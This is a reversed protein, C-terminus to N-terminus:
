APRGACCELPDGPLEAYGCRCYIDPGSPGMVIHVITRCVPCRPAHAVDDYNAPTYDDPHTLIEITPSM